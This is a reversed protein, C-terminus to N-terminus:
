HVAFGVAYSNARAQELKDEFFSDEVFSHRM